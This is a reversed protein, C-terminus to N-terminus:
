FILCYEMEMSPRSRKKQKLSSEERSYMELLLHALYKYVSCEYQSFTVSPQMCVTGGLIREKGMAAFGFLRERRGRARSVRELWTRKGRSEKEELEERLVRVFEQLKAKRQHMENSSPQM